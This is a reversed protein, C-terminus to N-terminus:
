PVPFDLSAIGIKAISVGGGGVGVLAVKSVMLCYQKNAETGTAQHSLASLGRDVAAPLCVALGCAWSRGLGEGTGEASFCPIQSSLQTNMITEDQYACLDCGYFVRIGLGVGGGSQILWHKIAVPHNIRYSYRSSGAGMEFLKM